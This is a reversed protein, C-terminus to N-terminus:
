RARGAGRVCRPAKRAPASATIAECAFGRRAHITAQREARDLVSRYLREREPSFAARCPLAARFRRRTLPSRDSRVGCRRERERSLAASAGRFAHLAALERHCHRVGGASGSPLQASDLRCPGSGELGAPATTCLSESLIGMSHLRKASSEAPVSGYGSRM